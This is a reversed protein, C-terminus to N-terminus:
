RSAPLKVRFITPGQPSSRVDVEGSSLEVAKKVIVLGLGRGGPNQVSANAGRFFPEWVRKIESETLGPGSSQVTIIFNSGEKMLSVLMRKERDSYKLGNDILNSFVKKILLEHAFINATELVSKFEVREEGEKEIFEKMLAVLDIQVRNVEGNINDLRSLESVEGILTDIEMIENKIM